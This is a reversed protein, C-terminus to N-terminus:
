SSSVVWTSLLLLLIPSGSTKVGQFDDQKTIKFIGSRTLVIQWQILQNFRIMSSNSEYDM